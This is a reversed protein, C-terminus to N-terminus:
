NWINRQTPLNHSSELQSKANQFNNLERVLTSVNSGKAYGQWLLLGAPLSVINKSEGSEVAVPVRM